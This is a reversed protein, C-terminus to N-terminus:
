GMGMQIQVLDLVTIMLQLSRGKYIGPVNVTKYIPEDQNMWYENNTIRSAVYYRTGGWEITIDISLDNNTKEV